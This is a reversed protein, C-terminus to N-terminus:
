FLSSGVCVIYQFTKVAIAFRSFLDSSGVCVIYQFTKVAIAFRSFLDSSGVCVIYQFLPVTTTIPSFVFKFRCMRHISIASFKNFKIAPSDQVSM